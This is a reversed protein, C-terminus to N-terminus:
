KHILKEYDYVTINEFQKTKENYYYMIKNEYKDWEWSEEKLYIDFPDTIYKSDLYWKKILEKLDKLGDKNDKKSKEFANMIEYLNIARKYKIDYQQIQEPSSKNKKALDLTDKWFSIASAYWNVAGQFSLVLGLSGLWAEEQMMTIYFFQYAKVKDSELQSPSKYTKGILYIWALTYPTEWNKCPNKLDKYKEWFEKKFKFGDETLELNEFKTLDKNQLIKIVKQKDCSNEMGLNWYEIAKEVSFNNLLNISIPYIEYFKPNLAVVVELYKEIAKKYVTWFANEGTYLITDIWYKDGIVKSYWFSYQKVKKWDLLSM